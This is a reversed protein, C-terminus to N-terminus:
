TLNLNMIQNVTVLSTLKSDTGIGQGAKAELIQYSSDKELFSNM